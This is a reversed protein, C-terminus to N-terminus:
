FPLKGSIGPFGGRKGRKNMQKIMKNSQEFQKLLRNIDEVKRGCGAAIRRKRSANLIEPKAREEPTMSLIIAETRAFASEDIAEDPISAGGPLMAMIQRMNGMKQVQRLQDLLDNLDLGRKTRTKKMLEKASEEDFTQSAKEILSMVDGM